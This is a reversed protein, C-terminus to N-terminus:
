SPKIAEALKQDSEALLAHISFKISSICNSNLERREGCPSRPYFIQILTLMSTVGATARRLSLTSLFGRNHPCSSTKPHTARRLSLTSLFNKTPLSLFSIKIDSEALLAHISFSASWACSMKVARDSEALLAHISFDIVDSTDSLTGRREGCPSRPYFIQTQTQHKPRKQDSEALLAHISFGEELYASYSSSQDSEALLAHISFDIVDSTDSLTGSTARRLSLTSLFIGEWQIVDRVPPREGCPSRPYFLTHTMCNISRPSDSEALLAHISFRPARGIPEAHGKDSEALLAHISFVVYKSVEEISSTARRLSLTSLFVRHADLPNLTGKLDSEALLAHISFDQSRKAKDYERQREGCPSRPYFIM